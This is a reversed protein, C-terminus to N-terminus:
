LEMPFVRAGRGGDYIVGCGLVPRKAFDRGYAFAYKKIDVGCGVGMYLIKDRLSAMYGCKLNHHIHAIVTSQRSMLSAKEPANDGSLGTGHFYRIGDIEHSFGDVWGKPLHWINRFSTMVDEPLGVHKAKLDVREDHNGLCLFVEPIAKYWDVLRKRAEAIEDKPSHGNPDQEFHASFAHNDVLDGVCVVKNCKEKKKIELLFELFNRHEFPVHSCGFALINNHM